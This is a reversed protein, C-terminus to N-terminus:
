KAFEVHDAQLADALSLLKDPPVGRKGTEIGSLMQKNNCGARLKM